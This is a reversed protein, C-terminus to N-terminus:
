YLIVVSGILLSVTKEARGAFYVSRRQTGCYIESTLKDHRTTTVHEILLCFVNVSRRKVQCHAGRPSVKGKTGWNFYCRM